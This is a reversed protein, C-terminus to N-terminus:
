FFASGKCRKEFFLLFWGTKRIANRRDSETARALYAYYARLICTIYVYYGRLLWTSDNTINKVM